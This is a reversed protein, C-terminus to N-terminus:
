NEANKATQSYQNLYKEFKSFRVTHRFLGVKKYALSCGSIM